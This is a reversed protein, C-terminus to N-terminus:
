PVGILSWEFCMSLVDSFEENSLPFRISLMDDLGLFVGPPDFALVVSTFCPSCRGALALSCWRAVGLRLHRLRLGRLVREMLWGRLVIVRDLGFLHCGSFAFGLATM